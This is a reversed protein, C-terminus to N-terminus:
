AVHPIGGIPLASQFRYEWSTRYNKFGTGIREPSDRSIRPAELMAAPFLPGPPNPWTTYGIAVGSQIAHYITANRLRQRIPTGIMTEILTDRPGGGWGSLSETFTMLTNQPASVPIEAEIQVSFSRKTAYEAGGGDPFDPGQVIRVGGRTQSAVILHSSPTTGDSLLLTVNPDVQQYATILANIKTTMDAQGTGLLKGQITWTHTHAVPLGGDTVVPRKTITIQPEGIRHTYTGIRLYM